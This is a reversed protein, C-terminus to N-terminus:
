RVVIAPRTRTPKLPEIRDAPRSLYRKWDEPEGYPGKPADVPVYETTVIEGKYNRIWRSIVLRRPGANQGEIIAAFHKSGIFGLKSPSEYVPRIRRSVADYLVILRYDVVKENYQDIYFIHSVYMDMALTRGGVWRLQDAFYLVDDANSLMQMPSESRIDDVMGLMTGGGSWDITRALVELEPNWESTFAGRLDLRGGTRLKKYWRIRGSNDLVIMALGYPSDRESGDPGKNVDAILVNGDLSASDFTLGPPLTRKTGGYNWSQSTNGVRIEEREITCMVDGIWWAYTNPPLRKAIKGSPMDLILTQNWDSIKIQKGDPKWRDIVWGYESIPLEITRTPNFLRFTSRKVSDGDEPGVVDILALTQGNPSWEMSRVKGNLPIQRVAGTTSLILSLVAPVMMENQRDLHLNRACYQM